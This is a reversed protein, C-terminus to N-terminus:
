LSDNSCVGSIRDQEPAVGHLMACAHKRIASDSHEGLLLLLDIIDTISESRANARLWTWSSQQVFTGFLRSRGDSIGNITQRIRRQQSQNLNGNTALEKLCDKYDDHHYRSLLICAELRLLLNPADRYAKLLQSVAFTGVFAEADRATLPLKDAFTTPQFGQGPTLLAEAMAANEGKRVSEKNHQGSFIPIWARDIDQISRYLRNSTSTLCLIARMGPALDSYSTLEQCNSTCGFRFFRVESTPDIRGKIQIEIRGKYEQWQMQALSSWPIPQPPGVSRVSSITAILLLDSRRLLEDPADSLLMLNMPIHGPITCGATMMLVTALLSRTMVTM